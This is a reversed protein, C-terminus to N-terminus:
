RDNQEKKNRSYWELWPSKKRGLDKGVIGKLGRHAQRQNYEDPHNLQSALIPVADDFKHDILSLLTYYAAHKGFGQAKRPLAAFIEQFTPLNKEVPTKRMGGVAYELMQQAGHKAGWVAAERFHELGSILSSKTAFAHLRGSIPISKKNKTRGIAIIFDRRHSEQEPRVLERSFVLAGSHGLIQLEAVAKRFYHYSERPQVYHSLKQAKTDPNRELLVDQFAKRKKLGNTIALRLREITPTSSDPILHYPGPNM